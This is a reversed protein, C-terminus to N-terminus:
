HKPSYMPDTSPAGKPMTKSCESLKAWRLQNPFTGPIIADLDVVEFDKAELVDEVRKPATKVIPNASPTKFCRKPIIRSCETPKVWRLQNTLTGLRNIADM